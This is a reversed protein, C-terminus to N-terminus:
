RKKNKDKALFYIIVTLIASFTIYSGLNLQIDELSLPEVSMLNGRYNPGIYYDGFIEILLVLTFIVLINLYKKM